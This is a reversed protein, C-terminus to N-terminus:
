NAIDELKSQMDEIVSNKGDSVGIRYGIEYVQTIVDEYEDLPIFRDGQIRYLDEAMVRLREKDM